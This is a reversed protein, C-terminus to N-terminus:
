HRDHDDRKRTKADKHNRTAKTQRPPLAVKSNKAPWSGKHTTRDPKAAAYLPIHITFCAGEGKAGKVDVWGNHRDVIEKVVALGVGLGGSERQRGSDARWFRSFVMKAEEPSLGIGTDRVEIFATTLDSGVRVNVSGGEPTYRVANSILNATAQRIMDADGLVLVHPQMDYSFSLGSDIVFAEHTAVISTILEGVDVVETKIPTSRNELRSLKLIADVLRSLRQVESNVTELRQEDAEFVGDVMAEVTSQIAMLPTRLEHAVDTTLRRELERDREISDAMADFTKGLRAIEDEGRLKTRAGMDGAAIAEATSAMRNIPRVLGKAFLFGLCSALVMAVLAAIMMAQYSNDRLEQDTRTVLAESGYVWVRVSGVAKGDVVINATEIGRSSPPPALTHTDLGGRNGDGTRVAASDYVISHNENDSVVVGVGESMSETYRAIDIVEERYLTGTAEYVQEIQKATSDALSQMNEKTYTSFHQDWVFSLVGIAVLVTMAAILAFAATLRTAYSLDRWRPLIHNREEAERAERASRERNLNIPGSDEPGHSYKDSTDKAAM